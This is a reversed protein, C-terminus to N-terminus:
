ADQGSGACTAVCLDPAIGEGPAGAQGWSQQRANATAPAAHRPWHGKDQDTDSVTAM